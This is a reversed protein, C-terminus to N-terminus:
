FHTLHPGHGVSKKACGATDVSSQIWLDTIKTLIHDTIQLEEEPAHFMGQLCRTPIQDWCKAKTAAM